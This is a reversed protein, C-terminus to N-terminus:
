RIQHKGLEKALSKTYAVVGGKSAAYNSQLRYGVKGLISSINVISGLCGREKQGDSALLMKVFSQSMLHTGQPQFSSFINM